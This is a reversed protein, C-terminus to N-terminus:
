SEVEEVPLARWEDPEYEHDCEGCCICEWVEGNIEHIEIDGVRGEDDLSEIIFAINASNTDMGWKGVVEGCKECRRGYVPGPEFNIAKRIANLDRGDLPVEWGRVGNPFGSLKRAGLVKHSVIEGHEQLGDPTYTVELDFEGLVEIVKALRVTVRRTIEDSM